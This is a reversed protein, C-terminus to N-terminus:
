KIEDYISLVKEKTDKFLSLVNNPTSEVSIRVADETNSSRILIWSKDDVLIKTGDMKEIQFSKAKFKDEIKEIIAKQYYSEIPLKSRITSYNSALEICDNYQDHNLSCIIASALVGDRCMNFKPMIFGASSGEGGAEANLNLMEKVVNAEGVKSYNLSGGHDEVMHEVANSTDLSV